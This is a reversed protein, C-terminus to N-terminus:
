EEDCPPDSEETSTSITETREGSPMRDVSVHANEEGADQLVALFLSYYRGLNAELREPAYIQISIPEATMTLIDFLADLNNGYYDPFGLQQSLTKHLEERTRIEQGWIIATKM